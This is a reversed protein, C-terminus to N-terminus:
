CPDKRFMDSLIHIAFSHLFWGMIHQQMLLGWTQISSAKRQTFVFCQGKNVTIVVTSFQCGRCHLAAKVLSAGHQGTVNMTM